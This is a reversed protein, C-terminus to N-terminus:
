PKCIEVIATEGGLAIRVPLPRLKLDTGLQKQFQRINM